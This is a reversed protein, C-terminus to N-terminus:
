AALELLAATARREGDRGVLVGSAHHATLLDIGARPGALLAATALTEADVARPAIVTASEASDIAPAGTFPDIVHYDVGSSGYSLPPPDTPDTPM